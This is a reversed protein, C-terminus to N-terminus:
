AMPYTTDGWMDSEAVRATIAVPAITSRHVIFSKTIAAAISDWEVALHHATFSAANPAAIVAVIVAMVRVASRAAPRIMPPGILSVAHAVAQRAV